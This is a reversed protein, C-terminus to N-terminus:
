TIKLSSEEKVKAKTKELELNLAILKQELLVIQAKINAARRGTASSLMLMLTHYQMSASGIQAEVSGVAMEGLLIVGVSAREQHREEHRSAQVQRPNLQSQAKPSQDKLEALHKQVQQQAEKPKTDVPQQQKAIPASTARCRKAGPKETLYLRRNVDSRAQICTLLKVKVEQSENSPLYKPIQSQHHAEVLAAYDSDRRFLPGRLRTNKGSGPLRV